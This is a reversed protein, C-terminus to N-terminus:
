PLKREELRRGGILASPDDRLTTAFEAFNEAGTVLSDLARLMDDRARMLTVDAHDVFETSRDALKTYSTIAAGLEDKGLRANLAGAASDIRSIMSEAHDLVRRVQDPDILTVVRDRVVAVSERVMGVTDRTEALIAPLEDSALAVNSMIKDIDKSKVAVLRNVQRSVEELESLTRALRRQNESGTLVVMNGLLDDIKRVIVGAQDSLMDLMSLEAEIRGNLELSGAENTGGILEIFKLGTIGAMNIVAKTDRKVPTGGDVTIQVQVQTVDKPNIAIAEVRGVAVGNYKVPAGAELGSVSQSFNIYYPDRKRFLEVGVLLGITVVLLVAASLLFLGLRMRQSRTLRSM